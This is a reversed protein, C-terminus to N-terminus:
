EIIIRRIEKKPPDTEAANQLVHVVKGIVTNLLSIEEQTLEALVGQGYKLVEKMILNIQHRGSETLIITVVRKDTENRERILLEKKEMRGVIGTVTNLPINLYQAISSMNVDSNKYLWMLVFLENKTCNLLVNEWLEQSFLIRFRDLFDFMTEELNSIDFGM